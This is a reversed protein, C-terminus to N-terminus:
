DTCRHEVDSGGRPVKRYLASTSARVHRCNVQPLGALRQVNCTGRESHRNPVQLPIKEIEVLRKAFKVENEAAGHEQVHSRRQVRDAFQARKALMSYDERRGTRDVAGCSITWDAFEQANMCRVTVIPVIPRNTHCRQALHKACTIKRRNLM